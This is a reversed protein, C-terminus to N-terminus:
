RKRRNSAYSHLSELESVDGSKPRDIMGVPPLNLVPGDTTERDCERLSIEAFIPGSFLSNLAEKGERRCQLYVAKDNISDAFDSAITSDDDGDGPYDEGAHGTMGARPGHKQRFGRLLKEMERPLLFNKMATRVQATNRSARSRCTAHTRYSATSRSTRFSALSEAESNGDAGRPARHGRLPRARDRDRSGGGRRPRDHDFGIPKSLYPSSVFEPAINYKKNRGARSSAVSSSMAEAITSCRESGSPTRLPPLVTAEQQEPTGMM